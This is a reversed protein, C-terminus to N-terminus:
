LVFPRVRHFRLHRPAVPRTNRPPARSPPRRTTSKTVAAAMGFAFVGGDPTPTLGLRAGQSRGCAVCALFIPSALAISAGEAVPAAPPPLLYRRRKCRLHLCVIRGCLIANASRCRHRCCANRGQHGAAIAWVVIFILFYWDQPVQPREGGGANILLPGVLCANAIAAAPRLTNACPGLRMGVIKIMIRPMAIVSDKGPGRPQARCVVNPPRRWCGVLAQALAAGKIWSSSSSSSSSSCALSEEVPSAARASILSSGSGVAGGGTKVSCGGSTM